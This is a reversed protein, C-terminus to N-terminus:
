EMSEQKELRIRLLRWIFNPLLHRPIFNLVKPPTRLLFRARLPALNQGAADNCILRWVLLRKFLNPAM